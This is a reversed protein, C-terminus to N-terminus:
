FSQFQAHAHIQHTHTHTNYSYASAADLGTAVKHNVYSMCVLSSQTYVYMYAETHAPVAAPDIM